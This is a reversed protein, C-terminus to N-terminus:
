PFTKKDAVTIRPGSNPGTNEVAGTLTDYYRRVLFCKCITQDPIFRMRIRVRRPDRVDYIRGIAVNMLDVRAVKVAGGVEDYPFYLLRATRRLDLAVVRAQRTAYRHEQEAVAREARKQNVILTRMVLRHDRVVTTEQDDPGVVIDIASKIWGQLCPKDRLSM